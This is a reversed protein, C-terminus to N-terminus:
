TDAAHALRAGAFVGPILLILFLLNYWLPFLAWYQLQVFIGVALLAVGLTWLAATASGRTVRAAVAGAILSFLLSLLLIVAILLTSDTSGDERFSTPTLVSLLANSGLWLVTWLVFGIVAALITRM